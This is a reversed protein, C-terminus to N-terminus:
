RDTSPRTGAGPRGKYYDAFVLDFTGDNSRALAYLFRATRGMPGRRRMAERRAKEAETLPPRDDGRPGDHEFTRGQIVYLTHIAVRSHRNENRMEAVIADREKPQGRNPEGDSLLVITDVKSVELAERLSDIVNTPGYPVSRKLFGRVDRAASHRAPVLRKKWLRPEADYEIVGFFTSPPASSVFIEVEEVVQDFQGWYMSESKDLVLMVHDSLIRKGFFGGQEAEPPAYRDTDKAAAPRADRPVFRIDKGDTRRWKVWDKQREGRDQFTLFVLSAHAGTRVRLRKDGLLDILADVSAVDRYASLAEALALRVQWRKHKKRGLLAKPPAEAADQLALARLAMATIRWDSRTSAEELAARLSADAIGALELEDLAALCAEDDRSEIRARDQSDLPRLVRADGGVRAWLELYGDLDLDRGIMTALASRTAEAHSTAHERRPEAVGNSRQWALIMEAAQMLATVIRERESVNPGYSEILAVVARAFRPAM